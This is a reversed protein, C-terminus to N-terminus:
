FTGIAMLNLSLLGQVSHLANSPDFSMCPDAPTLWLDFQKSIGQSRWIQYSFGHGFHLANSPDFTMRSDALTLWLEFQM